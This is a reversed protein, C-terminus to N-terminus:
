LCPLFALEQVGKLGTADSGVIVGELIENKFPRFVVARFDVKFHARGDGPFILAESIRTLDYFSM